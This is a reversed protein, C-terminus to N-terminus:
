LNIYAWFPWTHLFHLLHLRLISFPDQFRVNKRTNWHSFKKTSHGWFNRVEFPACEGDSVGQERLRAERGHKAGGISFEQIRGQDKHCIWPQKHWAKINIIIAMWAYFCFTNNNYIDSQRVQGYLIVLLREEFENFLLHKHMVHSM